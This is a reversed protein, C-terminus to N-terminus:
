IEHAINHQQLRRQEIPVFAPTYLGCMQPNYIYIDIYWTLVYILQSVEM